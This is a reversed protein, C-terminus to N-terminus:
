RPSWTPRLGRVEPLGGVEAEWLAPIVSPLWWVQGRIRITILQRQRGRNLQKKTTRQLSRERGKM